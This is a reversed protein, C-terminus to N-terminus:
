QPAELPIRIKELSTQLTPLTTFRIRWLILWNVKRFSVTTLEVYHEDQEHKRSSLNVAERHIAPPKIAVHKKSGYRSFPFVQCRQLWQSNSACHWALHHECTASFYKATLKTFQIMFWERILSIDSFAWNHPGRGLKLELRACIINSSVAISISQWTTRFYTSLSPIARKNLQSHFPFAAEQSWCVDLRGSISINESHPSLQQRSPVRLWSSPLEM